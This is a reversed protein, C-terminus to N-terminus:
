GSVNWKTKQETLWFLYFWWSVWGVQEVRMYLMVDGPVLAVV